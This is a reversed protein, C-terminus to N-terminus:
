VLFEQNRKKKRSGFDLRYYDVELIDQSGESEGM